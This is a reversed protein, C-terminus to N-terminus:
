NTNVAKEVPRSMKCEPLRTIYHFSTWFLSRFGFQCKFFFIKRGPQIRRPPPLNSSPIYLHSCQRPSLIFLPIQIMGWVRQVLSLESYIYIKKGDEFLFFSAEWSDLFIYNDSASIKKERGQKRHHSTVRTGFIITVPTSSSWLAIKQCGTQTHLSMEAPIFGM